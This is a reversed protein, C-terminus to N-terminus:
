SEATWKFIVTTPAPLNILLSQDCGDFAIAEAARGGDNGVGSGCLLSLDATWKLKTGSASTVVHRSLADHAALERRPKSLLAWVERM